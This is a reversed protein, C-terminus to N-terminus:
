YVDSSWEALPTLGTMDPEFAVGFPADVVSDIQIRGNEIRVVPFGGAHAAYLDPQEKLAAEQLAAPFESLGAFYHHGNRELNTIGLTAAVAIDQPLAVPGLNTLDESSLRLPLTAPNALNRQAILCANALGHFVGKCNKHSTGSYGAALALALTGTESDSEDIIFPPRDKWARLEESTQESLAIDRHFPQEVWLLYQLFDRIIPDANLADWMERFPGVSHYNENGDLSFAVSRANDRLIEVIRHMRTRNEDFDPGLKIKFHTLGQVRIFEEFSQPLGDNVRHAEDVDVDALPDALGVTHRVIVSRLPHPPLFDAPAADGLEPYIDSLMMGLTNERVAQGFSKGTARCFADIVAREMLSVGFGALLMPCNREKAWGRQAAYLEQWFAFVTAQAPIEQALMAAHQVVEIMEALDEHFSTEPNKTFWKPPLQDASYGFQLHGDIKLTLRVILHPVRTMTVIGYRFPTRLHLDQLFFEVNSVSLSM